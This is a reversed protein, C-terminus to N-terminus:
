NLLDDLTARKYLSKEAIYPFKEEIMENVINLANLEKDCQISLIRDYECKTLKIMKKTCKPCTYYEGYRNDFVVYKGGCCTYASLDSQDIPRTCEDYKCKLTKDLIYAYRHKKTKDIWVGHLDRIKRSKDRYPYRSDEVWYFDKKPDCMGYYKFNCVQYISGIHRTADALTIVARVNHQKLMRISNGLLYSTANTGNLYPIMCLRSLEVIDKCSNDEIGFWGYLTHVGQVTSYTSCGVLENTDILYLGYCYLAFFKADRLYHYKKIFDYALNKPIPRICFLEKAHLERSKFKEIKDEFEM